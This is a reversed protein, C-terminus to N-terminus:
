SISLIRHCGKLESVSINTCRLIGGMTMVLEMAVRIYDTNLVLMNIESDHSLVDYYIHLCRSSGLSRNSSVNNFSICIIYGTFLITKNLVKYISKTNYLCM